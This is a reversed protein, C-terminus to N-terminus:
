STRIAGCRLLGAVHGLMEFLALQSDNLHQLFDCMQTMTSPAAFTETVTFDNLALAKVYIENPKM